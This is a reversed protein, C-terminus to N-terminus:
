HLAEEDTTSENDYLVVYEGNTQRARSGEWLEEDSMTDFEDLLSDTASDYGSVSSQEASTAPTSPTSSNHSPVLDPTALGSFGGPIAPAPEPM